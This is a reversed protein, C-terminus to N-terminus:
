PAPSRTSLPLCAFSSSMSSSGPSTRCSPFSSPRSIARSTDNVCLAGVNHGDPTRLPVGFYARVYPPGTVLPSNCFRPDVLADPVVLPEDKRITHTCFSINRATETTEIGVRSKFWQRDRDVLSVMAIPAQLALKALRTIRDFSEEPHSDLVDYRYLARLREDETNLACTAADGIADLVDTM